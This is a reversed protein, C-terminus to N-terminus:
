CGNGRSGPAGKSAFTNPPAFPYAARLAGFPSRAAAVEPQKPSPVIFGFEGEGADFSVERVFHQLQKSRDYVMLVQEQQIVPVTDELSRPVFM